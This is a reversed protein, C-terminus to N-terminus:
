EDKIIRCKDLLVWMNQEDYGTITGCIKIGPNLSINPIHLIDDSHICFLQENGICIIGQPYFYKITVQVSQGPLYKNKELYWRTRPRSTADRWIEEFEKRSIIECDNKTDVYQDALSAELCSVSIKGSADDVTVQRFATGEQDVEFWFKYGDFDVYIYIMIMQQLSHKSM